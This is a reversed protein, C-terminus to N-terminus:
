NEEGKDLSFVNNLFKKVGVLIHGTQTTVQSSSREWICRPEERKRLVLPLTANPLTVMEMRGVSKQERSRQSQPNGESHGPNEM